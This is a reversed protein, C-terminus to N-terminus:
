EPQQNNWSFYKTRKFFNSDFNLTWILSSKQYITPGPTLLNPISFDTKSGQNEDKESKERGNERGGTQGHSEREGERENIEM